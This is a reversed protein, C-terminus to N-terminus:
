KHFAKLDELSFCQLLWSLSSHRQSRGLEPEPTLSLRFLGSLQEVNDWLLERPSFPSAWVQQFYFCTWGKGPVPHNLVSGCPCPLLSSARGGPAPGQTGQSQDEGQGPTVSPQASLLPSKGSHGPPFTHGTPGASHPCFINVGWCTILDQALCWTRGGSQLDQALHHQRERDGPQASARLTQGPPSVLAPTEPLLM